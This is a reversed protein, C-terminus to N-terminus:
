MCMHPRRRGCFSCPCVAACVLWGREKFHARVLAGCCRRVEDPTNTYLCTERLVPEPELLPFHRAVYPRMHAEFDGRELEFTSDAHVCM